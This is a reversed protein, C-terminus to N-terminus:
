CHDTLICLQIVCIAFLAVYVFLKILTHAVKTMKKTIYEIPLIGRLISFKQHVLGIVREVHIRVNALTRTDEVEYAELQHKGRTFAPLHLRAQMMGVTDSIDFGRDAM